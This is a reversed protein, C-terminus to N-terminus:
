KGTESRVFRSWAAPNKSAVQADTHARERAGREYGVNWFIACSLAAVITCGILILLPAVAVPKTKTSQSIRSAAERARDARERASIELNSLQGEIRQTRLNIQDAVKAIATLALVDRRDYEANERLNDGLRLGYLQILLSNYAMGPEIENSAIMREFLSAREPGLADVVTKRVDDPTM